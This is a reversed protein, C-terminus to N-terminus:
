VLLPSQQLLPVRFKPIGLTNKWFTCYARRVKTGSSVNDKYVPCYVPRGQAGSRPSVNDELVTQERNFCGQFSSPFLLCHRQGCMNLLTLSVWPFHCTSMPFTSFTQMYVLSKSPWLHYIVSYFAHSYVQTKSLAIYPERTFSFM